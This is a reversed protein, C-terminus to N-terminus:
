FGEWVFAPFRRMPYFGMRRYLEIAEGNAGTVTLTASACGHLRM